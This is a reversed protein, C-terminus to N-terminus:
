RGVLGSGLLIGGLVQEPVELKCFCTCLYLESVKAKIFCHTSFYLVSVIIFTLYIWLDNAFIITFTNLQHKDNHVRLTCWGAGGHPSYGLKDSLSFSPPLLLSPPLSLSLPLFPPLFPSLSPSLCLSLSLSLSLSLPSLNLPLSGDYVKHGSHMASQCCIGSIVNTVSILLCEILIGDIIM